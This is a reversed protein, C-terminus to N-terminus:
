SSIKQLRFLIKFILIELYFFMDNQHFQFENRFRPYWECIFIFIIVFLLM